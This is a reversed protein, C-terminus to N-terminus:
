VQNRQTVTPRSPISYRIFDSFRKTQREASTPNDRLEASPDHLGPDSAGLKEDWADFLDDAAHRIDGVRNHVDEVTDECRSLEIRLRDYTVSVDGQFDTVSSFAEGVARFQEQAEALADHGDRVRAVLIERQDLGLADLADDEVSQCASVTSLAVALAAIWRYTM